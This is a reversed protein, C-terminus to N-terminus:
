RAVRASRVLNDLDSQLLMIQKGIRYYAIKGALCWTRLTITAVRLENAAEALPRLKDEATAPMRIEEM